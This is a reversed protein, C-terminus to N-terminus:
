KVLPVDWNDKRALILLNHLATVQLSSHTVGSHADLLRLVGDVDPRDDTALVAIASLLAQSHVAQYPRRVMHCAAHNEVILPMLQGVAQLMLSRRDALPLSTDMMLSEIANFLPQTKRRNFRVVNAPESATSAHHWGISSTNSRL